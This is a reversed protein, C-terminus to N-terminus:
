FWGVLVLKASQAEEKHFNIGYGMRLIHWPCLCVPGKLVLAVQMLPLLGKKM